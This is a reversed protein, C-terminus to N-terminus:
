DSWEVMKGPGVRVGHQPPPKGQQLIWGTATTGVRYDHPRLLQRIFTCPNTQEKVANLVKQHSPRIYPRFSEFVCESVDAWATWEVGANLPRGTAATFLAAVRPLPPVVVFQACM